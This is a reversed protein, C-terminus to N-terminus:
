RSFLLRKERNHKQIQGSRLRCYRIPITNNNKENYTIFHFVQQRMANTVNTM